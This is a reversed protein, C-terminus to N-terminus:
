GQDKDDPSDESLLALAFDQCTCSKQAWRARGKRLVPVHGSRLRINVNGVGVSLWCCNVSMSAFLCEFTTCLTKIMAEVHSQFSWLNM